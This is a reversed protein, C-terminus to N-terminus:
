KVEVLNARREALWAPYNVPNALYYQCALTTWWALKLEYTFDHGIMLEANHRALQDREFVYHCKLAALYPHPWTAMHSGDPGALEEDQIVIDIHSQALRWLDYPAFHYVGLLNGEDVKSQWEEFWPFAQLRETDTMM